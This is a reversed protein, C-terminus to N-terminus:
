TQRIAFMARKFAKPTRPNLVTSGCFLVWDL